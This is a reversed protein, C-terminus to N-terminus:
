RVEKDDILKNVYDLILGRMDQLYINGKIVNVIFVNCDSEEFIRQAHKITFPSVNRSAHIINRTLRRIAIANMCYVDESVKIIDYGGSIGYVTNIMIRSQDKISKVARLDVYNM